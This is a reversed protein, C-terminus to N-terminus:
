VGGAVGGAILSKCISFVANSPAKVEKTAAKAEEALTVFTSSASDKGDVYLPSTQCYATSNRGEMVEKEQETDYGPSVAIARPIFRLSRPSFLSIFICWSRVSVNTFMFLIFPLIDPKRVSLKALRVDVSRM